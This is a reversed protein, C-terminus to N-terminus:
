EGADFADIATKLEPEFAGDILVFLVECIAGSRNVWAHNTGVQVVMDGASLEVDEDDLLMTISGSMVIAYDVTETRHMMPHRGSRGFTAAGENGLAAFAERAQEPTMEEVEPPQPPFRNLRLVTGNKTPMQRRPGETPEPAGAPIPVPMAHTRWIDISAQRGGASRHVFPAAGDSLVVAKGGADHGTVVRRVYGGIEGCDNDSM